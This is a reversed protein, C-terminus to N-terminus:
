KLVPVTAPDYGFWQKTLKSITGNSSLVRIARTV